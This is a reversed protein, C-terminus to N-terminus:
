FSEATVHVRIKGRVFAVSGAPGSSKIVRNLTGAQEWVTTPPNERSVFFSNTVKIQKLGCNQKVIMDRSLRTGPARPQVYDYYCLSGDVPM